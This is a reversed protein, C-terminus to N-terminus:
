AAVTQGTARVPLDVHFTSGRGLETELTLKGHHRDVVISRAIALGQGTGKGVGKTTFFPEFIRERIAEPIGPGNDSISIRVADGHRATSIRIVGKPRTGESDGGIAHAANVILNLFVQNIEGLHCEVPPLDGFHTEVDALYKYENRSVALTSSLGRNLDAGAKEKQDPHAFERMALVLSSVREVGELTRQFARPVRSRLYELESGGADGRDLATLVKGFAQELFTVTDGIYQMPTNIEHAIGAALQGVAELKQALRLEAQVRAREAHESELRAQSEQLQSTRVSVLRELEDRTVRAQRELSWKRTIAHAMQLVEINDFPKKLILLGDQQGLRAVIDSWVYDSYASCIVIEIAPDVAWMRSITELGDWGPPMRMDVFAIAYPQGAEVSAEVHELAEAGQFASILEFGILRAADPADGFLDAELARLAHAPAQDPAVLIKRFDDHVATNDDVLLIRRNAIPEAPTHKSTSM